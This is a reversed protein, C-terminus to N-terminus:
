DTEHFKMPRILNNNFPLFERSWALTGSSSFRLVYRNLGSTDSGIIICGGVSTPSVSTVTQSGPMNISRAWLFNANADMKILLMDTDTGSGDYISGGFFVNGTVGTVSVNIKSNTNIYYQKITLPNGNADIKITAVPVNSFSLENKAYLFFDGNPKEAVEVVNNFPLPAILKEYIKLGDANTRMVMLNDTNIAANFFYDGNGAAAM